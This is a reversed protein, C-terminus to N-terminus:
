GIVEPEDLERSVKRADTVNGRGPEDRERPFVHHGDATPPSCAPATRVPM